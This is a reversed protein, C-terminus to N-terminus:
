PTQPPTFTAPVERNELTDEMAESVVRELRNIESENLRPQVAVRTTTAPNLDGTINPLQSNEAIETGSLPMASDEAGGNLVMDATFMVALAMSAAIAGQGVVQFFRKSNSSSQLFAPKGAPIADNELEARIGALLNCSPKVHIEQKLSASVVHYRHWKEHLSDTELVNDDDGRDKMAKLIRRLELDDAENDMLASLSEHLKETM